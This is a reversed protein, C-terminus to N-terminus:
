FCRTVGVRLVQTRVDGTVDLKLRRNSKPINDDVGSFWLLRLGSLLLVASLGISMQSKTDRDSTRDFLKKAEEATSALKYADFITNADRRFDIAKKTMYSGGALFLVGFTRRATFYSKADAPSVLGAAFVALALLCCVFQVIRRDM